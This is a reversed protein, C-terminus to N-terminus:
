SFGKHSVHGMDHMSGPSIVLKQLTLHISGKVGRSPASIKRQNCPEPSLKFTKIRSKASKRGLFPRLNALNKKKATKFPMLYTICIFTLKKQQWIKICCQRIRQMDPAIKVPRERTERQM